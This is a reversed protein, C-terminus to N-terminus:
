FFLKIQLQIQRQQAALPSFATSGTTQRSVGYLAQGFAPNPSPNYIVLTPFGRISYPANMFGGPAGLNAHNFVNFFDSRFQLRRSEKGFLSFSKAISFDVNWFGPAAISNRGLGGV